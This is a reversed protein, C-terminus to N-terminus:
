KEEDKGLLRIHFIFIPKREETGDRDLFMPAIVELKELKSNSEEKIEM